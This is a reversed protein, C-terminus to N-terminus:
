VRQTLTCPSNLVGCSLETMVHYNIHFACVDLDTCKSAIAVLQTLVCVHLCNVVFHGNQSSFTTTSHLFFNSHKKYRFLSFLLQCNYIISLIANCKSDTHTYMYKLAALSLLISHMIISVINGFVM